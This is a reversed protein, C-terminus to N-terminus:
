LSTKNKESGKKEKEQLICVLCLACQARETNGNMFFFFLKKKDTIQNCQKNEGKLLCLYSQKIM